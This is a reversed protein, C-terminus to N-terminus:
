DAQWVFSRGNLHFPRKAERVRCNLNAIVLSLEIESLKGGECKVRCVEAHFDEIGREAIPNRNSNKAEGVELNINLSHLLRDNLLSQFGTAGDVRM